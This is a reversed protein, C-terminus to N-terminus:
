LPKCMYQPHLMVFTNETLEVMTFIVLNPILFWLSLILLM